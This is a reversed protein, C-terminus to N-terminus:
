LCDLVGLSLMVHGRVGDDYDRRFKKNFGQMRVALSYPSFPYFYPIGVCSSALILKVLLANVGNNKVGFSGTCIIVYSM